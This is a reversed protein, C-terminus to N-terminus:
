DLSRDCDTALETPTSVRCRHLSFTSRCHKNTKAGVSGIDLREHRASSGRRTSSANTWRTYVGIYSDRAEGRRSAERLRWEHGRSRVETAGYGTARTKILCERSHRIWNRKDGCTRRPEGGKISVYLATLVSQASAEIVM